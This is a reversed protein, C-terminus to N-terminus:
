NSLEIKVNFYEKEANDSLDSSYKSQNSKNEYM